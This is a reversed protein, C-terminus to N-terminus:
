KMSSHFSMKRDNLIQFVDLGGCKVNGVDYTSIRGKKVPYTMQVDNKAMSCRCLIVQM